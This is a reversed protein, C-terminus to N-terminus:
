KKPGSTYLSHKTWVLGESRTITALEKVRMMMNQKRDHLYAFLCQSEVYTQVQKVLDELNFISSRYLIECYCDSTYNGVFYKGNFKKKHSMIYQNVSEEYRNGKADAQLNEFFQGILQDCKKTIESQMDSSMGYLFPSLYDWNGLWLIGGPISDDIEYTNKNDFVVSDTKKDYKVHWEIAQPFVDNEGFGMFILKDNVSKIDQTEMWKTLNDKFHYAYDRLLNKKKLPANKKRYFDILDCWNMKSTSTDVAVVVPADNYLKLITNNSNSACAIGTKNMVAVFSTKTKTM